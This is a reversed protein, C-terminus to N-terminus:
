KEVAVVCLIEKEEIYFLNYSQLNKLYEITGEGYETNYCRIKINTKFELGQVHGAKYVAEKACWLRLRDKLTKLTSLEDLHAFRKLVSDNIIRDSREIDIGVKKAKHYVAAAYGNTHAISLFGFSTKPPKNEFCEFEVKQEIAEWACARGALFELKKERNSFTKLRKQDEVGLSYKELYFNEDNVIKCIRIHIQDTTLSYVLQM